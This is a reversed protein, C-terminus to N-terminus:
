STTRNGGFEHHVVESFPCGEVRLGQEYCLRWSGTWWPDQHSQCWGCGVQDPPVPTEAQSSFNSLHADRQGISVVLM